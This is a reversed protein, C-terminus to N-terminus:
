IRATVFVSRAEVEHRELLRRGAEARGPPLPIHQTMRGLRLCANENAREQDERDREALEVRAKQQVRRDVLAIRRRQVVGVVQVRKLDRAGGRNIEHDQQEGREDRELVDAPALQLLHPLSHSAPAAASARPTCGQRLAPCSTLRSRHTDKARGHPTAGSPRPKTSFSNTGCTSSHSAAPRNAGQAIAVVPRARAARCRSARPMRRPPRRSGACRPRRRPAQANGRPRPGDHTHQCTLVIAAGCMKLRPVSACFARQSGPMQRPSARTAGDHHGLRARATVHRADPRPRLRPSSHVDRPGLHEDGVADV